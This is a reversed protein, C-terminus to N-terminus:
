DAMQYNSGEGGGTVVVRPQTMFFISGATSKAVKQRNLRRTVRRCDGDSYESLIERRDEWSLRLERRSRRPKRTVEYYDLSMDKQTQYEWGLSVPPGLSCCPHDGLVQNYERILVDTFTVHKLPLNRKRPNTGGHGHAHDDEELETDEDDNHKEEQEQEEEEGESSEESDSEESESSSSSSVVTEVLHNTNVVMRHNMMPRSPIIPPLIIIDETDDAATWLDVEEVDMCVDESSSCSDLSESSPSEELELHREQQQQQQPEEGRQDELELLKLLSEEGEDDSGCNTSDDDHHSSTNFSHPPM